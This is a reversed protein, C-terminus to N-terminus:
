ACILFRLVKLLGTGHAFAAGAASLTLTIQKAPTGLPQGRTGSHKQHYREQSRQFSEKGGSRGFHELIRLM